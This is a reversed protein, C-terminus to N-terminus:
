VKEFSFIISIDVLKGYTIGEYFFGDIISIEASVMGELRNEAMNPRYFVFRKGELASKLKNDYGEFLSTIIFVDEEDYAITKM